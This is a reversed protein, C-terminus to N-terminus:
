YESYSSIFSYVSLNERSEDNITFDTFLLISIKSNQSHTHLIYWLDGKNITSCKPRWHGLTKTLLPCLGNTILTFIESCIKILTWIMLLRIEVCKKCQSFKIYTVHNLGLSCTPCRLCTRAIPIHRPGKPFSTYQIGLSINPVRLSTGLVSLSSILVRLSIGYVSLSTILVRLSTKSFM